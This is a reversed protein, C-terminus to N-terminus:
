PVDTVIDGSSMNTMAGSNGGSGHDAITPYTDGDGNRWWGVPSLSTLNDPTGSNYITSLNSTQDSNWIAVEDLNGAFQYSSGVSLKFDAPDNDITAPISTTNTGDLVGDVYINMSTSPIFVCMVHHWNGDQYDSASQVVTSAGGSFVAFEIVKITGFAQTWIAYCRNSFDDKAITMDNDGTATSTSKFWFSISMAGTIQLETPNGMTVYDDVGDFLLSNINSLVGPGGDTITWGRSILATRAIDSGSAGYAATGAHFPVNSTGQAEWAVLMLDYNTQSFGINGSFMNSADTLSSINWSSIDPNFLGTGQFMGNMTTVKSTDSLTVSILQNCNLFSASMNTLNTTTWNIAQNLQGAAFFMNSITTVSSMDFPIPQNFVSCYKFMAYMDTVNSTNFSSVPQNFAYCYMFMERMNTVNSTDLFTVPLNWQQAAFFMRNMNTVNGTGGIFTPTTNLAPCYSFMNQMNTVNTTDLTVHGNFSGMQTFMGLTSTLSSSNTITIDSTMASASSFMYDCGTAALSSGDFNIEQNFALARKFMEQMNTVNSTDFPVPQNFAQAEWFMKQMSTTSSTDWDDMSGNFAYCYSFMQGLDTCVSLDPTDSYNAVMNFAGFFMQYCREWQIDGWNDISLIKQPDVYANVMGTIPVSSAISIQYTGSAAYVHTLEPANYSTITEVNGDGWDVTINFGVTQVQFKLKFSDAPGGYSSPYTTDITMKFEPSSGSIIFPDILM